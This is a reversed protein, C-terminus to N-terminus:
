HYFLCIHNYLSFLFPAIVIFNGGWKGLGQYTLEEVYCAGCVQHSPVKV